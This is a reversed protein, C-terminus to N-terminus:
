FKEKGSFMFLGAILAAGVLVYTSDIGFITAPLLSSVVPSGSVAAPNVTNTTTNTTNTTGGNVANSTPTPTVPVPVAPDHSMLSLQAPQSLAVLPQGSSQQSAINRANYLAIGQTYADSTYPGPTVQGTTVLAKYVAEPDNILDAM